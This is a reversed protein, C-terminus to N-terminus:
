TEIIKLTKNVVQRNHIISGNYIYLLSKPFIDEKIGLELRDKKIPMTQPQYAAQSLLTQLELLVGAPYIEGKHM